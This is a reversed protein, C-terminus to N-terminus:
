SPSVQLLAPPQLVCLSAAKRVAKACGSHVVLLQMTQFCPASAKHGERLHTIVARGEHPLNRDRKPHSHFPLTIPPPYLINKKLSFLYPHARDEGTSCVHYFFFLHRKQLFFVFCFFRLCLTFPFFFFFPLPLSSQQNCWLSGKWQM